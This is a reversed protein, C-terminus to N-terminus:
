SFVCRAITALARPIVYISSEKGVLTEAFRLADSIRYFYSFPLGEMFAKREKTVFIINYDSLAKAVMYARHEGAVCGNIKIHNVFDAPSRMNKLEEYFRKETVSNGIGDKLEAAIIVVGGKRVVPSDVSLVYNIARSAQYLNIDKPKGIGCIAIDAKKEVKVEFVKKAFEVGKAFVNTVPGSFIKLAKGDSDNVTNIAFIPGVKDAIHWLTEQFTNGELSGITVAANDLFKISHTANITDQGALGIAITKAGGSYGAYLHPEIVGISIIYDYHMLKDNLTIPVNYKTKGLYKITDSLANHQMVGYIKLVSSGLLADVQGYTHARHLGTAIIIDITRSPIHVKELLVPLIERLHASRTADPVVILVKKKSFPVEKQRLTKLILKKAKVPAFKKNQLIGILRDGPIIANLDGDGCPINVIM